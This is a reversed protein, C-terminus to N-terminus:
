TQSPIRLFGNYVMVCWRCFGVFLPGYKLDGYLLYPDLGPGEAISLSVISSTKKRNSAPRALLPHPPFHVWGLLVRASVNMSQGPAHQGAIRSKQFGASPTTTQPGTMTYQKQLPIGAISRPSSPTVLFSLKAASSAFVRAWTIREEAQATYCAM